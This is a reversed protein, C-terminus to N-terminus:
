LNRSLVRIVGRLAVGGTARLYYFLVQASLNDRCEILDVVGEPVSEQLADIGLRQLNREATAANVDLAFHRALDIEGTLADANMARVHEHLSSDNNLDLCGLGKSCYALTLQEVVHSGESDSQADKEVETWFCFKM